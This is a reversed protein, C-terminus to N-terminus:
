GILLVPTVHCHKLSHRSVQEFWNFFGFAEEWMEFWFIERLLLIRCEENGVDVHVAAITSVFQIFACSLAGMIQAIANNRIYIQSQITPVACRTALVVRAVVFVVLHAVFARLAVYHCSALTTTAGRAIPRGNAIPALLSSSCQYCCCPEVVHHLNQQRMDWLLKLVLFVLLTLINGFFLLSCMGIFTTIIILHNDHASVLSLSLYALEGSYWTMKHGFSRMM